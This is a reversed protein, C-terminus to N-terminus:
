PLQMTDQQKTMAHQIELLQLDTARGAVTGVMCFYTFPGYCKTACKKKLYHSERLLTEM